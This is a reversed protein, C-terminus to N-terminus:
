KPGWDYRLTVHKQCAGCEAVSQMASLSNLDGGGKIHEKAEFLEM